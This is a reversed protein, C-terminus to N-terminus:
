KKIIRNVDIVVECDTHIQYTEQGYVTVVKNEFPTADIKNQQILLQIEDKDTKLLHTRPGCEGTTMTPSSTLLGTLTIENGEKEECGSIGILLFLSVVVLLFTKIKM